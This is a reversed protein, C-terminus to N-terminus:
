TPNLGSLTSLVKSLLFYPASFVQTLPLGPKSRSEAIPLSIGESGSSYWIGGRCIGLSSHRRTHREAAVLEPGWQVPESRILRPCPNFKFSGGTSPSELTYGPNTAVLIFFLLPVELGVGGNVGLQSIKPLDSSM